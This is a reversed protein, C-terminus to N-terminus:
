GLVLLLSRRVVKEVSSFGADLSVLVLTGGGPCNPETLRLLRAVVFFLRRPNVVSSM